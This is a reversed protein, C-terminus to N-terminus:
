GKPRASVDPAAYREHRRHGPTRGVLMDSLPHVHDQLARTDGVLDLPLDTCAARVDEDLPRELACRGSRPAAAGRILEALMSAEHM